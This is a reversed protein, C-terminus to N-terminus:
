LNAMKQVLHKNQCLMLLKFINEIYINFTWRYVSQILNKIKRQWRGLSAVQLKCKNAVWDTIVKSDGYIQLHSLLKSRAFYLLFWLALLKGKTNIGRGCGMQLKYVRSDNCKLM